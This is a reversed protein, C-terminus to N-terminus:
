LELASLIFAALEDGLQDSLPLHDLMLRYWLVGFVVDLILELDVDAGLEGRGRARELLDRLVARRAFLFRDRFAAHFVPDLLAEAMLGILAPRQGRQRFSEKLFLRLDTQLSGTDPVRITTAARDLMADLV